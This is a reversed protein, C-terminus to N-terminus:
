RSALTESPTPRLPAAAIATQYKTRGEAGVGRARTAPLREGLLDSLRHAFLSGVVASGLTAGIQRFYNNAATATGVQRMPFSNQVVLVLIQMNLGLGLGLIGIYVCLQWVPSDATISGMLLLALIMIASGAIPM